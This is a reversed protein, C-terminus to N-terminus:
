IDPRRTAHAFPQLRTPRAPHPIAVPLSHDLGSQILEVGIDTFVIPPFTFDPASFCHGLTTARRVLRKRKLSYFSETIQVKSIGTANSLAKLSTDPNSPLAILAQLARIFTLEYKNLHYNIMAPHSLIKQNLGTGYQNLPYPLVPHLPNTLKM